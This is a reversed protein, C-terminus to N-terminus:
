ALARSLAVRRIAFGHVADSHGDVVDGRRGQVVADRDPLREVVPSDIPRRQQRDWSRATFRKM